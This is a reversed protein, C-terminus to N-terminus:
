STLINPIIQQQVSKQIFIDATFENNHKYNM